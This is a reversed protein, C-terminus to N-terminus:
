ASLPTEFDAALRTYLPVVNGREALEAFAELSPEVPIFSVVSRLM